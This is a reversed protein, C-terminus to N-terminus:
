ARVWGGGGKGNPDLAADRYSIPEKMDVKVGTIETFDAPDLGAGALFFCGEKEVFVFVRGGYPAYAVRTFKDNTAPPIANIFAAMKEKAMGKLEAMTTDRQKAQEQLGAFTACSQVPIQQATAVSGWVALAAGALASLLYKM